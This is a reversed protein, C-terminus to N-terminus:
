RGTELLPRLPATAAIERRAAAAWAFVDLRGSRAADRALLRLDDRALGLDVLVRDELRALSRYTKLERLARLARLFRCRLRRLMSMSGIDM